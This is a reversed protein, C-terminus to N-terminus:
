AKASRGLRAIARLHPKATQNIALEMAAYHAILQRGAETLSAGGGGRGGTATRVVPEKLGANLEEVLQWARKYSMDMNRAAASISNLNEIGRLLDIKGPGIPLTGNLYIRPRIRPTTAPM